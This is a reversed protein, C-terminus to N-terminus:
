QFNRPRDHAWTLYDTIQDTLPRPTWGLDARARDIALVGDKGHTLSPDIDVVEGVSGAGAGSTGASPMDATCSAAGFHSLLDPVTTWRGGALNWTGTPADDDLCLPVLARAVDVASLWDGGAELTRATVTVPEGSVVSAALHFPLSMSARASTPREMEGFIKTLRVTPTAIDFLTGYRHVIMETSVKTIGYLENALLPSNEKVPNPLGDGAGYVAGSSVHVFRRVSVAARCAELLNVTGGINVDLYRSPQEREWSPVHTLTAAHVVGEPTTAALLDRLGAADCLDQRHFDVRDIDTGLERRLLPDPASLDVAIVRLEPDADLLRRVLVSMLFGCAGTVLVTM